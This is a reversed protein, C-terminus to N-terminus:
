EASSDNALTWPPLQHQPSFPEVFLASLVADFPLRIRLHKISIINVSVNKKLHKIVETYFNQFLDDSSSPASLDGGAAAM